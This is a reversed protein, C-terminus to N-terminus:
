PKPTIPQNLDPIAPLCGCSGCRGSTQRVSALAVALAVILVFTKM